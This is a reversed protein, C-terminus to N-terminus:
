TPCSGDLLGEKVCLSHSPPEGKCGLLSFSLIKLILIPMKTIVRMGGRYSAEYFFVLSPAALPLSPMFTFGLALLCLCYLCLWLLEIGNILNSM